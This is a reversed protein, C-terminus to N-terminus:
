KHVVPPHQAQSPFYMLGHLFSVALHLLLNSFMKKSPCRKLMVTAALDMPYAFVQGITITFVRTQLPLYGDQIWFDLFHIGATQEMKRSWYAM